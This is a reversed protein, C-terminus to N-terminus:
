GAYYRAAVAWVTAAMALVPWAFLLGHLRKSWVSEAEPRFTPLFPMTILLVPLFYRGQVGWVRPAGVACWALYLSSFMAGIFALVLAAVGWGIMPRGPHGNRRREFRLPLGALLVIPGIGYMFAPLKTDLWGLIGVLQRLWGWGLATVTTAYAKAVAFPNALMFELQAKPDPTGWDFHPYAVVDRVMLATWGVTAAAVAAFLLFGTGKRRATMPLLLALPLYPPRAMSILSFAVAAVTLRRPDLDGNEVATAMTAGCLTALGIMPGDQSLAGAMAATMPLSLLVAFGPWRGGFLPLAARILAATALAQFLRSLYLTFVVKLGLGKGIWIALIAPAYLFPPYVATNLFDTEAPEGGWEAMLAKDFRAWTMKTKPDFPMGEFADGASKIGPDVFGGSTDAFRHGILSGASAQEARLFHATEDPNQFPPMLFALLVSLTFMVIFAFKAPEVRTGRMIAGSDGDVAQKPFM